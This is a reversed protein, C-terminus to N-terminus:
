IETTVQPRAGVIAVCEGAVLSGSKMCHLLDRNELWSAIFGGAYSDGAGTTDIMSSKIATVSVLQGNRTKGVSGMSGKKIVVTPTFELLADLCADINSEKTLFIAEEENLLLTSMLPLWSLIEELKVQSMGGVTAPDFFIPLNKERIKEIMALVGPRSQANQLAYGSLYIAKFDDLSPLDNVTLGSNAGSDPFMTREGTPDVLIVVVGTRAGPVISHSYTIGLRDFESLVATGASDNGVRALVQTQAGSVQAWSAVNGAAGGGHTSIKSPTDSGYNIASPVVAVVDLMVDGICLLNPM